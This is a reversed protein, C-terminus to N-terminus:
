TIRKGIFIAYKSLYELYNNEPQHIDFGNQEETEQTENMFAIVKDWAAAKVQKVDVGTQKRKKDKKVFKNYLKTSCLKHYFSRNAGLDGVLLRSTLEDDGDILDM